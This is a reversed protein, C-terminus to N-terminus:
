SAIYTAAWAKLRGENLADEMAALGGEKIRGLFDTNMLVLKSTAEWGRYRKIGDGEDRLFLQLQKEPDDVLIIGRCSRILQESNRYTEVSVRVYRLIVNTLRTAEIFLKPFEGGHFAEEGSIFLERLTCDRLVLQCKPLLNLNAASLQCNALIANNSLYVNSYSWDCNKLQLERADASYFMLDACNDIDVTGVPNSFGMNGHCYTLRLDAVEGLLHLDQFSCASFYCDRVEVKSLRVRSFTCSDFSKKAIRIRSFEIDTFDRRNSVRESFLLAIKLNTKYLLSESHACHLLNQIIDIRTDARILCYSGVFYLIEYNLPRRLLSISQRKTIENVIVDAVFYEM